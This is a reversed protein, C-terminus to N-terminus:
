GKLSVMGTPSTSIPHGGEAGVAQVGNDGISDGLTQGVAVMRKHEILRHGCCEM